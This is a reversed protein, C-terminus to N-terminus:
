NTSTAAPVFHVRIKVRGATFATADTRSASIYGPFSTVSGILAGTGTLSAPQTHTKFLASFEGVANMNATPFAALLGDYDIETSRDLKILGVDIATGTAAAVETVVEVREIQAGSPIVTVDNLITETATLESLEVEVEVMRTPGFTLYEGASSNSVASDTGSKIYLGDGNLWTAM